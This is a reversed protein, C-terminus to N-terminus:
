SKKLVVVSDRLFHNGALRRRLGRAVLIEEVELGVIKGLTAFILDTPILYPADAGGHLSNGVVYIARGRPKLTDAHSRLSRWTDYLYGLLVRSRGRRQDLEIDNVRSIVPGILDALAGSELLKSFEADPSLESDEIPQCQPHSRFTARRLSRFEEADNAFGLFWLELKYVENYDINNPYPPSTLIMDVSGSAVGVGVPDRGDGVKVTAKGRSHHGSALEGVDSAITEVAERFVKALTSRSKNVIRLARGDRRVKSVPLIASALALLLARREPSDPLEEIAQRYAVVRGALHKSICRGTSISSLNPLPIKKPSKVAQIEASLELLRNADIEAWDLKTRAAFASFPHCEIGTAVIRSSQLQASLLCTGVGCFPDLIQYESEIEADFEYRELIESLLSSSFSEKYRFWRHGPTSDNGNPVVLSEFGPESAMPLENEALEFSSLEPLQDRNIM